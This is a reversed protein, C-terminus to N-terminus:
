SSATPLTLTGPLHVAESEPSKLLRELRAIRSALSGHQWSRRTLPIGNALSLTELAALYTRIGEPSPHQQLECTGLKQQRLFDSAVVCGFYDAQAELRRSLAGFVTFVYVALLMVPLLGSLYPSLAEGAMQSPLSALQPWFHNIAGWAVAPVAMCLGRILLHRYRVHGLEHGFVAVLQPESFHRLLGDSLFVSRVPGCCGTVAANALGSETRWLWLNRVPVGWRHSVEVLKARLPGDPLTEIRWCMRLLWPFFAFMAALPVAYVIWGFPQQQLNPFCWRSVDELVFLTLVPLLVLGLHSRTQRWVFQLKNVPPAVDLGRARALRRVIVDVRHSAAWNLLQPLLLPGLLAVEGLLPLRDLHWNARVIQPWRLWLVAALVEIGWALTLLLQYREYRQLLARRQEYEQPLRRATRVSAAWALVAAPTLVCPLVLVRWAWDEVLVDPASMGMLLAILTFFVVLIPM